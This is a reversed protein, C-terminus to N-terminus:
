QAELVALNLKIGEPLPEGDPTTSIAKIVRSVDRQMLGRQAKILVNTKQSDFPSEGNIGLSVYERIESEQTEADVDSFVGKEDSGRYVRSFDNGKVITLVISNKASVNEGHRAPPLDVSAQEEIKAAVLFYILLLFTIDIMPTIDMETDEGRRRRPMVVRTDRSQSDVPLQQSM